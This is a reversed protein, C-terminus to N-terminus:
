YGSTKTTANIKGNCSLSSIYVGEEHIKHTSQLISVSKNKLDVSSIPYNSTLDNLKRGKTVRSGKATLILSSTISLITLEFLSSIITNKGYKLQTM